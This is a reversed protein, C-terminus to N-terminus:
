ARRGTLFALVRFKMQGGTVDRFGAAELMPLTSKLGRQDGHRFLAGLHDAPSPRSGTAFDVALFRGGSRLVRAIEEFGKQKVEEPLHHLMLSSLAVDFSADPFPLDEVVNVRFDIDTGARVAKKKAVEIMEPSADIGCVKGNSGAAVKAALTLSGTGCGVDLVSQGASIGALEVTERRIRKEQGLTMLFALVDYFPAWHLVKGATRPAEQHTPHTHM